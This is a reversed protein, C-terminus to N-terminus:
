VETSTSSTWHQVITRLDHLSYPKSLVANIGLEFYEKQQDSHASATLAIIPVKAMRNPLARIRKATERGNLIPINMDMLILQYPLQQIAELASLGDAAWDVHYGLITLAETVLQQNSPDDEVLLISISTSTVAKLTTKQRNDVELLLKHLTNPHLPRLLHLDAVTDAVTSANVEDEVIVLVSTPYRKRIINLAQLAKDPADHVLVVDFLAAPLQAHTATSVVELGFSSLQQALVYRATGSPAIVLGKLHRFQQEVESLVIPLTLVFSFTTGIGVESKIEIKGGMLEVLQRSISLGLGTGGYKRTLTGDAQTFSDFIRAIQDNSIGIGTDSVEFRLRSLESIPSVPKLRLTVAGQPTFKIANTALNMLVQHLHNADGLVRAPVDPAIELALSLDKQAAMTALTLKVEELIGRPDLPEIHMNLHGTEIKSFDLVDNVIKLLRKASEYAADTFEQQDSDLNSERLLELMGLVGTLPTRIEHSMNSVFESKLKATHIAEAHAKALAEQINQRELVHIYAEIITRITSIEEPLWQRTHRTEDLGIFGEIRQELYIPLILVSQIGQPELIAYIDSPLENINQPGLMGQEALLPFFSPVLDDFPLGQLNQMEPAIGEACWEYTNDLLRENKRFHFIYVRSVDLFQGVLGLITNLTRDLDDTRLFLDIINRQLQELELLRLQRQQSRHIDTVDRYQWMHGLYKDEAWVPIYDREFVRGDLLHLPEGIVTKQAKLLQDIGKVFDDPNRFLHKSEEASRSCDVGILSTPNAPINFINCFSQNVLAIQRRENEVLIAIPLNEILLSLRLTSTFFATEAAKRATIDRIYAIFIPYQRAPSSGETVVLEIPLETGDSCLATMEIRRDLIRKERTALYRQMGAQHAVRWQPPVLIDILSKGLVNVRRYGFTHEAAPNFELITAEHDIVIISDPGSGLLSKHIIQNIIIQATAELEAQKDDM